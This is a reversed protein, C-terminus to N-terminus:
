RYSASSVLQNIAARPFVHAGLYGGDPKVEERLEKSIRGKRGM